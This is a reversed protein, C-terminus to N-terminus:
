KGRYSVPADRHVALNGHGRLCRRKVWYCYGAVRAVAVARALPYSAHLDSFGDLDVAQGDHGHISHLRARGGNPVSRKREVEEVESDNRSREASTNSHKRLLGGATGRIATAGSDECVQVWIGASKM